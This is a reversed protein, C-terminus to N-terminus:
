VNFVVDSDLSQPLLQRAHAFALNRDNQGSLALLQFAQRTQAQELTLGLNQALLKRQHGPIRGNALVGLLQADGNVAAVRGQPSPEPAHIAGRGVNVGVVRADRQGVRGM